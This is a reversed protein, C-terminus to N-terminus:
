WKKMVPLLEEVGGEDGEEMSNMYESYFSIILFFVVLCFLM